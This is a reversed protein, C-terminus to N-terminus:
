SPLDVRWGIINDKDITPIQIKVSRGEEDEMRWKASNILDEYTMEEESLKEELEENPEEGSYFELQRKSFDIYNLLLNTLKDTGELMMTFNGTLDPFDQDTLEVDGVLITDYYLKHM